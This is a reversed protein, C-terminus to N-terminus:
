LFVNMEMFHLFRRGYAIPEMASLKDGNSMFVTTKLLREAKKSM